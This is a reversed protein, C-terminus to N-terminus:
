IVWNSHCNCCVYRTIYSKGERFFIAEKNELNKHSICKANHCIYDKTRPLTPDNCKYEFNIEKFQPGSTEVVNATTLFPQVFSNVRANTYYLEGTLIETVNATTLLPNVATIVRADTFYLNGSSEIVNSTYLNNWNAATISGVAIINGTSEFNKNVTIKDGSYVYTINAAAGDITIGAGDAAAANPLGNGLLLNKDEVNLTGTNLTVTNGQVVLDGSITLSNVLVNSTALADLVRTNTFYKNTTEVVNATTLLPTIAALANADFYQSTNASIVGTSSDYAIGSGASLSERARAPTFYLIGSNEVVNATTLLPNVVQLVRVNTFYQNTLETVNATTLRPNVADLAAVYVRANTYYLNSASEIVNASTLLPTVAEVTRVNTFYLNTLETVNSTTLRPNVADLAAVYVRANTYYLNSASEIVNATTLLPTIATIANADSYGSQVNASIVGTASDYTIGSGSSLSERARAPTFYLIGSNETVNATTLLPNVAQLVRVNTFYQNTTEIVNSTYLRSWINATITDVIINKSYINGIDYITGLDGSGVTLNGAIIVDRRVFLNGVTVNADSLAAYVKANTYYFNGGTEIVNATTLMPRVATNVRADTYYLNTGEVLNSTTHNALSSVTGLVNGEFTKAVLTSYRVETAANSVQIDNGPGPSYNDFVFYKKSEHDRIIGSHRDSGDNYHGVFGIDLADSPNTLGLQILTDDVIFTNTSFTIANGLVYLNGLITVSGFTVNSTTSVNQGISVVGTASDVSVGTGGTIAARARANTFYLNTTEKVNATTLMPQVATNVRTDTYYLNGLERVNATTIDGIITGITYSSVVNAASIRGNAEIIINEGAVFSGVARANTFYLNSTAEIVNATTLYPTFSAVANADTYISTINASIIGTTADYTIGVGSSLSARSRANTYYLNSASEIVNATTLMPRVATNVRLNTFYLNNTSEIVNATYLGNWINSTIGDVTINKSYINGIDSITGLPGVGITLNGAIVVDRRVFLNGVTVNADSLADYVRTNAFYLNGSTEIVNATTLMPRVATNVRADTYYLNNLETVNATYLRNWINATITDVTINKSYFSDIGSVNSTGTSGVSLNGTIEFNKNVTIKDGSSAYSIIANAGAITIGAGDAVAASISGNALVINKDEVSLTDVNLTTTNGQVLLDGSVTLNNVQTNATALAALVRANTFYQNTGEAVNSTTLLPTIAAIANADNYQTVNASIIGNASDYTIGTGSSLSTRARSTTFYLNSSTEIVNATTLVPTVADLAAVYVRANTYYLNSASEIVNATTLLPNVASVVRSNTYYLNNLEIVNATYLGNWINSTISNTVVTKAFANESLTNGIVEFNKNVSLKDGSSVYTLTANAGDITIGAGDAAASNPAGNALLINKDEVVLTATNLTVTNGQVILDGSITLNNVTVNSTVLADLVRVNTFYQNTGEIVNSTTLLPTIAIVARANTFYQNNLEAVNATTLLPSVALVARANTFYLNTLESVNASDLRIWYRIGSADSAVVQGAQSPLGLDPEVESLEIFQYREASVNASPVKAIRGSLLKTM